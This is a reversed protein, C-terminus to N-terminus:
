IPKNVHVAYYEEGNKLLKQYWNSKGSGPTSYKLLDLSVDSTQLILDYEQELADQFTRIKPRVPIATM